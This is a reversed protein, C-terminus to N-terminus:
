SKILQFTREYQYLSALVKASRGDLDINEIRM